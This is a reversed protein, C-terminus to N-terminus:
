ASARTRAVGRARRRDGGEVVTLVDAGADGVGVGGVVAAVAVVAVIPAARRRESRMAWCCRALPYRCESLVPVCAGGSRIRSLTSQQRPGKKDHHIRDVIISKIQGILKSKQDQLLEFGRAALLEELRTKQDSTIQSPTNVEGLEISSTKIELEDLIDKVTDICRPCVMNKIYLTNAKM